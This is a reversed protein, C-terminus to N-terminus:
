VEVPYPEKGLTIWDEALREWNADASADIFRKSDNVGSQKSLRRFQMKVIANDEVITASRTLRDAVLKQSDTLAQQSEPALPKMKRMDVMFGFTGNDIALYKNLEETYSKIESTTVFDSLTLKYGFSKKEIKYM